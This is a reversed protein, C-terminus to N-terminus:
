VEKSTPFMMLETGDESRLSMVCDVQAVESDPIVWQVSDGITVYFQSRESPCDKCLSITYLASVVTM